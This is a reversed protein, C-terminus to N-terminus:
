VICRDTVVLLGLVSLVSTSFYCNVVKSLNCATVRFRRGDGATKSHAGIPRHMMLGCGRGVDAAARRSDVAAPLCGFAACFKLTSRESTVCLNCADADLM